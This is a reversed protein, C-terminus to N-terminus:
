RLQWAGYGSLLLRGGRPDVAPTMAKARDRALRSLRFVRVIM